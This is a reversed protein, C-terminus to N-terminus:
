IRCLYKQMRKQCYKSVVRNCFKEQSDAAIRVCCGCFTTKAANQLRINQSIQSMFVQWFTFLRAAEAAMEPWFAFTRDVFIHNNKVLAQM